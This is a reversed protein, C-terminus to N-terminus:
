LNSTKINKEFKENLRDIKSDIKNLIEALDTQELPYRMAYITPNEM